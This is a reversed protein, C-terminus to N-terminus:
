SLIAQPYDKTIKKAVYALLVSKGSGAFGKIWANPSNVNWNDLFERQQEDLKHEPIIWKNAM